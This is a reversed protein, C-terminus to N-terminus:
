VTSELDFNQIPGILLIALGALDQGVEFYHSSEWDAKMNSRDADVEM